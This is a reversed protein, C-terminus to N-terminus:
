EGKEKSKEKCLIAMKDHYEVQKRHSKAERMHYHANWSYSKLKNKKIYDAKSKQEKELEAKLELAKVEAEEKTLFLRDEQYCSCGSRYETKEDLGTTETIVRTIHVIEPDVVYDYEHIYGTPSEFGPACGQCPLIVKGNNGLILTVQKKGFCTPCLVSKNDYRCSAFWVNDGVKFKAM